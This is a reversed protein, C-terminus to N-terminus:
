KGVNAYGEHIDNVGDQTVLESDLYRETTKLNNQGALKRATTASHKKATRTVFTKRFRHNGTGPPFTNPLEARVAVRRLQEVIRSGSQVKGKANPFILSSDETIGQRERRERIRLVVFAPLTINAERSKGNKTKREPRNYVNVFGYAFDIDAYRVHCLEGVRFGTSLSFEIL